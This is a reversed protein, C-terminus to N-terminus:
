RLLSWILLPIHMLLLLPYYVTGIAAVFVHLGSEVRLLRNAELSRRSSSTEIDRERAREGRAFDYNNIYDRLVDAVRFYLYVCLSLASVGCLLGTLAISVAFLM